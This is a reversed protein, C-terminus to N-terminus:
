KDKNLILYLAIAGFVLAMTKDVCKDVVPIMIEKDGCSMPQPELVVPTEVAPVDVPEIPRPDSVPPATLLPEEIQVQNRSVMSMSGDDWQIQYTPPLSKTQMGTYEGYRIQPVPGGILPIGDPGIMPQSPPFYTQSVRQTMFLPPLTLPGVITDNNLGGGPGGSYPVTPALPPLTVDDLASPVLFGPDNAIQEPTANPAPLGAMVPVGTSSDGNQNFWLNM